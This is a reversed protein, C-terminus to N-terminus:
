GVLKRAARELLAIDEPLEGLLELKKVIGEHCHSFDQIPTEPPNSQTM